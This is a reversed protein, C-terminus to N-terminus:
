PGFVMQPPQPEGLAIGLREIVARNMWVQFVPPRPDCKGQFLRQKALEAAQGGLATYDFVFAMAAGSQYFFKNYGVVPVNRLVSEKIIHQAISESIVTRDPILWIGDVRNVSEKLLLPIDKKSSVKLPVLDIGLDSAAAAARDFFTQNNAPDYFLGIRRVSPLGTCIAALQTEAPINLSIGCPGDGEGIVKDPNLIVAYVKAPTKGPFASWIFAAAEPGLAALLDPPTTSFRQVLDGGAKGEFREPLITEIRAGPIPELAQRMGDAAEIYPRINKSIFLIIESPAAVPADEAAGPLGPWLILCAGSFLILFVRIPKIVYRM